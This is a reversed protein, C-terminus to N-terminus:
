NYLVTEYLVGEGWSVCDIIICTFLVCYFFLVLYLLHGVVQGGRNNLEVVTLSCMYYLLAFCDLSKCSISM